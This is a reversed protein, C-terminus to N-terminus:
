GCIHISGVQPDTLRTGAVDIRTTSAASFPSPFFLLLVVFSFFFLCTCFLGKKRKKKKQRKSDTKRKVGERGTKKKVLVEVVANFFAFRMSIFLFWLIYIYIM